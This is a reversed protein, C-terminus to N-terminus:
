TLTSPFNIEKGQKTCVAVPMPSMIVAKNKLITSIQTKGCQFIKTVGIKPDSEAAKIMDYKSKLPLDNRSAMGSCLVCVSRKRM